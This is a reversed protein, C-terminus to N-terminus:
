YKRFFIPTPPYGNGFRVLLYGGDSQRTLEFRGIDGMELLKRV